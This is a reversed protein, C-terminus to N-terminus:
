CPSPSLVWPQTYALGLGLGLWNQKRQLFIARYDLSAEAELGVAETDWICQWAQGKSGTRFGQGPFHKTLQRVM